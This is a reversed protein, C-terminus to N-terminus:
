LYFTISFKYAIAMIMTDSWAFVVQPTWVNGHSPRNMGSIPVAPHLSWLPVWFLKESLCYFLKSWFLFFIQDLQQHGHENCPMQVLHNKFTGEMEFLEIVWYLQACLHSLDEWHKYSNQYVMVVSGLIVCIRKMQSMEVEIRWSKWGATASNGLIWVEARRPCKTYGESCTFGGASALYLQINTVAGQHTAVFVLTLNIFAKAFFTVPGAVAGYKPSNIVSCCSLSFCCRSANSLPVAVLFHRCPQVHPDATPLSLSSSAFLKNPDSLGLKGWLM